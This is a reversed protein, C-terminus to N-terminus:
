PIKQCSRGKGASNLKLMCWGVGPRNYVRYQFLVFSRFIGRGSVVGPRPGEVGAQELAERASFACATTVLCVRMRRALALAISFVPTLLEPPSKCLLILRPKM